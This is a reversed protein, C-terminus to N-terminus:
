GQPGQPGQPGVEGQPGQPGTAGQPGQPGQPGAPGQPGQQGANWQIRTEPVRCAETASVIRTNGNTANVCAYITQAEVRSPLVVLLGGAVAAAFGAAKLSSMLSSASVQPLGRLLLM